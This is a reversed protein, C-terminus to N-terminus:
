FMVFFFNPYLIKAMDGVGVTNLNFLSKFSLPQPLQQAQAFPGLEDAVRTIISSIHM